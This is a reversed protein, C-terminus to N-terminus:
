KNRVIDEKKLCKHAYLKNNKRVLKVEGFNGNGLSEIIEFDKISLSVDKSKEHHNVKLVSSNLKEHYSLKKNNSEQIKNITNEPVMSRSLAGEEQSM